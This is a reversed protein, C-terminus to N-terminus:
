GSTSLLIICKGGVRTFATAEGRMISNRFSDLGREGWRVRVRICVRDRKREESGDREKPWKSALAFLYAARLGCLRSDCIPLSTLDFCNAITCCCCCCSSFIVRRICESVRGEATGGEGDGETKAARENTAQWADTRGFFKRWQTTAFLDLTASLLSISKVTNTTLPQVQAAYPSHVM